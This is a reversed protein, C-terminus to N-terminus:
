EWDPYLSNNLLAKCYIEASINPFKVTLAFRLNDLLVICAPIGTGFFLNAPLGITGKIVGRKVLNKRIEAEANGRFLVGHPMIIAGKGTSKMSKLLHLLYACDGNKASPVGYEFRNFQDHNPDLGTNWAKDSFPPNAVAFDVTLLGGDEQKFHPATLTNDKWIEATPKDHLIMNMKALGATAVDKEQGYITLGRPAEDAAKL